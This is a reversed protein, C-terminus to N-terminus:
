ASQGAGRAQRAFQMPPLGVHRSFAVSFTSASSYGVRAALEAVGLGGERLLKRALAMRWSLLYAMPAMGVARQFREFFASRSLAAERALQAVTWPADPTEHMRRLAVAVRSDALGRMLGPMGEAGARSRFAEMLMVELLRALVPDRAPRQARAEEDILQVLAPLRPEGRVHLQRPLLSVLLEADSAEFQCYGVIMRLQPAADPPGLRYEGGPLLTPVTVTDEGPADESSMSFAQPAPVLVFDRAQLVLPESGDACLRAAGELVVCYFPRGSETRRVRWRGAASVLKSFAAAPQLLAVVETLPDSM